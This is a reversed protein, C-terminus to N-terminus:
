EALEENREIASWIDKSQLTDRAQPRMATLVITTGHSNKDTAKERWIKVLGSEFKQEPTGGKPDAFEGFQRLAVTAITRHKDGKVKTVIQFSHTLQSVSFL